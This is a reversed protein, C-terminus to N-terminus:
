NSDGDDETYYEDLLIKAEESGMKLATYLDDEGMDDDYEDENFMYIKARAIFYDADKNNLKIAQNIDKLASDFEKKFYKLKSRYYWPRDDTSDITISKTFYKLASDTKLMFNHTISNYYVGDFKTSDLIVAYNMDKQSLEM